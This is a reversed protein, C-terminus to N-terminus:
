ATANRSAVATIMGVPVGQADLVKWAISRVSKNEPRPSARDPSCRLFRFAKRPHPCILSDGLRTSTSEGIARKVQSINSYGAETCALRAHTAHYKGRSGGDVTVLFLNGDGLLAPM